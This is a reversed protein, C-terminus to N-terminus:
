RSVEFKEKEFIKRCFKALSKAYVELDGSCYVNSDNIKVSDGCISLTGGKLFIGYITKIIQIKIDENYMFVNCNTIELKKDGNLYECNEPIFIIQGGCKINNNDLLKIM